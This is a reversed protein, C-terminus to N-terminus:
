RHILNKLTNIDVELSSRLDDVTSHRKSRESRLNELTKVTDHMPLRYNQEIILDVQDEVQRFIEAIRNNLMAGITEQVKSILVKQVIMTKVAGIPDISKSIGGLFELIKSNNKQFKAIKRIIGKDSAVLKKLVQAGSSLLTHGGGVVKEAPGAGPILVLWMFFNAIDRITDAIQLPLQTEGELKGSIVLSISNHFKFKSIGELKNMETELLQNLEGVLEEIDADISEHKELKSAILHTKEDLKQAFKSTFDARFDEYKRKFTSIESETKEIDSKVAEIKQTIEDNSYSLGSIKVELSNKVQNALLKLAQKRRKEEVESLLAPVENNIVSVLSMISSNNTSPSTSKSINTSAERASLKIIRPNPIIASLSKNLNEEIRKIDAESKLDIKNLVFYVKSLFNKPLGALFQLFSETIDGQNAAIVFFAVDVIPLYGFTVDTHTENISSVGPTDVILVDRNLPGFEKLVIRIKKNDEYKIAESALQHLDISEIQKEGSEDIREVSYEDSEGPTIEVISASTPEDYTPLLDRGILCNVITSKGSNFEGLLAVNVALDDLEISAKQLDTFDYNHRQAIEFIIQKMIDATM